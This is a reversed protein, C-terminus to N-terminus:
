ELLKMQTSKKKGNPKPTPLSFFSPQRLREVAIKCYEESLEIGTARRGENQAAVLTTGSGLFPDLIIAKPLSYNMTLKKILGIPKQSPHGTYIDRNYNAAVTSNIFYYNYVRHVKNGHREFIREYESSAMGNIKKDWIHIATYSLPFEIIASWFILQKCNLNNLFVVSTDIWKDTHYNPYPPDTLVLDFQKNILTPMIELCDGCFITIGNKDYYPTSTM